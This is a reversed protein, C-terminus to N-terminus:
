MKLASVCALVCASTLKSKAGEEGLYCTMVNAGLSFGMGLLKARPFKNSLYLLARRLDDTYGGSYFQISTLEVGAGSVTVILGHRHTIRFSSCVAAFISWSAM